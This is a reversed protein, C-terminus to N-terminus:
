KPRYHEIDAPAVPAYLSECYACKGHCLREMERLVEEDKYVRFPFARGRNEPLSYFDIAKRTEEAGPSNPGRLVAPGEGCILKIM